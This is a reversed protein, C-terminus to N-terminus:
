TYPEPFIVWLVRSGRYVFVDGLGRVMWQASWIVGLVLWRCMLVSEFHTMWVRHSSRSFIVLMLKALVAWVLRSHGMMLMKHFLGPLVEKSHTLPWELRAPLSPASLNALSPARATLEFFRKKMFWGSSNLLPAWSHLSFWFM